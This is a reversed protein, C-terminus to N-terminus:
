IHTYFFMKHFNHFNVGEVHTFVFIYVEVCCIKNADFKRIGSSACGMSKWDADCHQRRTLYGNGQWFTYISNDNDNDFFDNRWSYFHPIKIPILQHETRSQVIRIRVFPPLFSKPTPSSSQIISCLNSSYRIENPLLPSKRAKDTLDVVLLSTLIHSM